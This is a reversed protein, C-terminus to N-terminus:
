SNPDGVKKSELDPNTPVTYSTSGFLYISRWDGVNWDFRGYLGFAFMNRWFGTDSDELLQTYEMNNIGPDVSHQLLVLPMEEPDSLDAAMWETLGIGYDVRNIGFTGQFINSTMQGKVSSTEVTFQSNALEMASKENISGRRVIVDTLRKGYPRNEDGLVGAFWERAAQVSTADLPTGGLHMNAQAAVTSVTVGSSDVYRHNFDFLNAKDFGKMSVGQRLFEFTEQNLANDVASGLNTVKRRLNGGTQDDSLVTRPVERTFEWEDLQAMFKYERFGQPQREGRWRRIRGDQGYFVVKKADSSTNEIMIVKKYTDDNAQQRGEKFAVELDAKLSEPVKSRFLSM